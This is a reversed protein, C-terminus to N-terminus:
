KVTIILVHLAFRPLGSNRVQTDSKQTLLADYFSAPFQLDCEHFRLELCGLENPQGSTMDPTDSTAEAVHCDTADLMTLYISVRLTLYDITMRLTFMFGCAGSDCECRGLLFLSLYTFKLPKINM